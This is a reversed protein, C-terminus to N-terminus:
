QNIVNIMDYFTKAITTINKTTFKYSVDFTHQLIIELLLKEKIIEQEILKVTTKNKDIFYIKIMTYLTNVDIIKHRDTKTLLISLEKSTNKENQMHDLLINSLEILKEKKTTM